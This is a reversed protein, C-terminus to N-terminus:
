KVVTVTVGWVNNHVVNWGCREKRGTQNRNLVSVTQKQSGPLPLSHSMYHRSCCCLNNIWNLSDFWASLIVLYKAIGTSHEFYDTAVNLYEFQSKKQEILVTGNINYDSTMEDNQNMRRGLLLGTVAATNCHRCVANTKPKLTGPRQTDLM